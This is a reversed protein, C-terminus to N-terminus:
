RFHRGVALIKGFPFLRQNQRTRSTQPRLGRDITEPKSDCGGDCDTCSVEFFRWGDLDLDRFEVGVTIGLYAWPEWLQIFDPGINKEKNPVYKLSATATVQRRKFFMENWGSPAHGCPPARSVACDNPVARVAGNAFTTQFHVAGVAPLLLLVCLMIVQFAKAERKRTDLSFDGFRPM